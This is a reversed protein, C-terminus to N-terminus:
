LVLHRRTGRCESCRMQTGGLILAKGLLTPRFFGRFGPLARLFFCQLSGLSFLFGRRAFGGFSFLRRGLSWSLDCRLFGSCLRGRRRLRGLRSGLRSGPRIRSFRRDGLLRRRAACRGWLRRRRLFGNQFRDPPHGPRHDDRAAVPRLRLRRLRDLVLNLRPAIQARCRGRRCSIFIVVAALTLDAALDRARAAAVFATHAALQRNGIGKVLALPLTRQCRELALALTFLELCHANRLRAFLDDAFDDNRLGDRNLLQGVAHGLAGDVDDFIQHLM